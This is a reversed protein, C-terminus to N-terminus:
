EVIGIDMRIPLVPFTKVGEGLIGVLTSQTHRVLLFIIQLLKEPINREPFLVPTTITVL